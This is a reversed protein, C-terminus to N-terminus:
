SVTQAEPISANRLVSVEPALAASTASNSGACLSAFNKLAQGALRAAANIGETIENVLPAPSRLFIEIPDTVARGGFVFGQFGRTHEVFQKMVALTQMNYQKLFPGFEEHEAWPKMAGSELWARLGIPNNGVSIMVEATRLREIELSLQEEPPLDRNEGFEPVFRIWRIGDLEM